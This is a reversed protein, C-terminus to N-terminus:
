FDSNKFGKFGNTNNLEVGPTEPKGQFEPFYFDKM